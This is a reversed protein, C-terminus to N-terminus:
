SRSLIYDVLDGVTMSIIEDLEKGAIWNAFDVREGYREVLREGLAVMEISEIELDENFSTELTIPGMLEFDDEVVEALIESVTALVRERDREDDHGHGIPPEPTSM